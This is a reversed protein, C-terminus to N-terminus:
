MTHKRRYVIVAILTLTMFLPLILFSPFEPIVIIKNETMEVSQEEQHMDYEASITYNGIPYTGSANVIKELLTLRVWGNIDTLKSDALTANPYTATVNASPVDFGNSDVVHVDLYWCVYLKAQNYLSHHSHTSNILKVFSSHYLEIFYITSNYVSAHSVSNAHLHWVESEKIEAYSSVQFSFSWKDVTTQILTTNPARYDIAVSCNLLFNWFIFFGPILNTISSNASETVLDLQEVTSNFLLVNSSGRTQVSEFTSNLIEGESNDNYYISEEHMPCSSFKASSNGYLRTAWANMLTANEAQLRPNGNAPNQLLVEGGQTFNVMANKLILTANEKVIISGNIDFRRDEITTVNNGQLVLDGQHIDPSAKVSLVVQAQVYISTVFLISIVILVHRIM